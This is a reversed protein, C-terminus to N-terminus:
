RPSHHITVNLLARLLVRDAGFHAYDAYIAVLGDGPAFTLIAAPAGYLLGFAMFVILM